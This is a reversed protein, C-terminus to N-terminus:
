HRNKRKLENVVSSKTFKPHTPDVAFKPDTFLKGLRSDNAIESADVQEDDSSKAEEVRTKKSAKSVEKAASIREMKQSELQQKREMKKTKKAEKRKELYKDWQTLGDKSAKGTEALRRSVDKGVSEVDRSFSMEMNGMVEEEEENASEEDSGAAEAGLLAQRLSSVDVEDEDESASELYAALDLDAIQASTLKKMLIKREPPDEDWSCTVKSHQMTMAGVEVNPPTYGSPIKDAVSVPERKDAPNPTDEPVFRLDLAESVFGACVGELEDYVICASNVSDFEAIAYYYMKKTDEYRRIAANRQDDLKKLEEKTKLSDDEDDEPMGEILPGYAEEREMREAGFDSKHLSINKLKRGPANADLFSQILVFLDAATVHDWSCNMIALKDTSDGLPIDEAESDSAAEDEVGDEMVVEEDAEVDEDSSSDAEWHFGGENDSSLADLAPELESEEEVEYFKRMEANIQKKGHKSKVDPTTAKIGRPDAKSAGRFREDTLIQKFRSDLVTKTKKTAPRRFRPDRSVGAFRVDNSKETTM